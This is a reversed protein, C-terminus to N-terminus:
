DVSDCKHLTVQHSMEAMFQQMAAGDLRIPGGDTSQITTVPKGLLNSLQQAIGMACNSTVAASSSAASTTPNTPFIHSVVVDPKKSRKKTSRKPNM